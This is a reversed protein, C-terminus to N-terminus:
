STLGWKEAFQTRNYKTVKERGGVRAWTSGFTHVIDVDLRQLEIGLQRATWSLDVDEFDAPYYRPDFGELCHWTARRCVIFYGGLYPVLVNGFKNWGTDYDLLQHGYLVGVEIDKVKVVIDENFLVDPQTIVLVDGSAVEVGQNNGVGFGRNVNNYLVRVNPRLSCVTELVNRTVEDSGNDVLVYEHPPSQSAQETFFRALMDPRNLVTM